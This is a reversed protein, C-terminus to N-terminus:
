AQDIRQHIRDRLIAASEFDLREAAEHMAVELDEISDSEDIPLDVEPKVEDRMPARIGKAVPQPTIHHQQNYDLQLARRRTTEKMALKM